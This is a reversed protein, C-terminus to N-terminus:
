AQSFQANPLTTKLNVTSARKVQKGVFDFTLNFQLLFLNSNEISIVDRYEVSCVRACKIFNLEM